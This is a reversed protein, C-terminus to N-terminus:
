ITMWPNRRGVIKAGRPFAKHTRGMKDCFIIPSPPPSPIPMSLYWSGGVFHILCPFVTYLM